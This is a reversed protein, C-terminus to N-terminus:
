SLVQIIYLISAKISVENYVNSLIAILLNLALISTFILYATLYIFGTTEGLESDNLIKYDFGGM